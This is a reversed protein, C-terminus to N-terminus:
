YLLLRQAVAFLVFAGAATRNQRFDVFVVDQIFLLNWESESDSDSVGVARTRSMTENKANKVVRAYRQVMSYQM